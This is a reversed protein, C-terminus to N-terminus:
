KSEEWKGLTRLFAEARQAATAHYLKPEPQVELCLTTTYADAQQDSLIKEAEHMANLDNCYDPIDCKLRLVGKPCMWWDESDTWGIKWKMVDTDDPRKWGCAEAIAINIQENTM